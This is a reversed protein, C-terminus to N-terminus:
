KSFFIWYFKWLAKKINQIKSVETFLCLRALSQAGYTWFDEATMIVHMVLKCSFHFGNFHLYFPMSNM